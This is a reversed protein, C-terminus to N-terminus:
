IGTTDNEREAIFDLVAKRARRIDVDDCLRGGELLKGEASFLTSCGSKKFRVVISGNQLPTVTPIEFDALDETAYGADQDNREPKSACAALLVSAAIAMSLACPLFLRPMIASVLVKPHHTLTAPHPKSHPDDQHNPDRSKVEALIISSSAHHPMAFGNEM